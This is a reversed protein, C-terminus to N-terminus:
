RRSEFITTFETLRSREDERGRSLELRYRVRDAPYSREQYYVPQRPETYSTRRIILLPSHRETGLLSAIEASALGAEIVFTGTVVLIGHRRWGTRKEAEADIRKPQHRGLHSRLEYM